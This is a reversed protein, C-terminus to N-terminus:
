CVLRLVSSPNLANALLKRGPSMETTSGMNEKEFSTEVRAIHGSRHPRSMQSVAIEDQVPSNNSLM